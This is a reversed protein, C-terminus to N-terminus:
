VNVPQKNQAMVNQLSEVLAVDQKTRVVCHSVWTSLLPLLFPSLSTSHKSLVYELMASFPSGRSTLHPSSPKKNSKM